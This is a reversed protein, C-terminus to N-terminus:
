FVFDNRDIHAVRANQITISSGVVGAVTIVVNAGLQTIALQDFGHPASLGHLDILDLRNEFDAVTDNGWDNIFTFRDGQAGGLLTDSGAGGVLANDFENGTLTLGTAVGYVRLSEIQQVPM